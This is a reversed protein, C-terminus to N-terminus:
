KPMDEDKWRWQVTSATLLPSLMLFKGDRVTFRCLADTEWEPKTVFDHICNKNHVVDRGIPQSPDPDADSEDLEPFHRIVFQAPEVAEMRFTPPSISYHSKHFCCRFADLCHEESDILIFNYQTCDYESTLSLMIDEGIATANASDWNQLGYAGVPTAEGLAIGALCHCAYSRVVPEKCWILDKLVPIAARDGSLVSPGDRFHIYSLVDDFYPIKSPEYTYSTDPNWHAIAFGWYTTPLGFYFHEHRVYSFFAYYAAPMLPVSALAVLIVARLYNKM